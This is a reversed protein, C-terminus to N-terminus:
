MRDKTLHLSQPHPTPTPTPHIGRFTAMRFCTYAQFSPNPKTYGQFHVQMGGMASGILIGCKAKDLAALGAADLEADELAKKGATMLYQMFKDM